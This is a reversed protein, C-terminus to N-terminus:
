IAVCRVIGKTPSALYLNDKSDVTMPIYSCGKVMEDIGAIVKAGEKSYVKVRTPDKEVTVVAGNSLYAVSVPNCCGHFEDLGTGRLGFALLQKGNLDYSQVRFAGLNAVLLENKDNIDFDLIGCCPRMNKIEAEEVGTSANFIGINRGGMDAIMLKGGAVRAGTAEKVGNMVFSNLEKGDKSYVKCNYGTIRKQKTTKGRFTREVEKETPVLVFINDKEDVAITSPISTTSVAFSKVIKGMPNIIAVTKDNNLAVVSGNSMVGLYKANKFLSGDFTSDVKYSVNSANVVESFNVDVSTEIKKRLAKVNSNNIDPSLIALITKLSDDSMGNSMTNLLFGSYFASPNKKMFNLNYEYLAKECRKIEAEYEKIFEKDDRKTMLESRMEFQKQVQEQRFKNAELAHENAINGEISINEITKIKRAPIGRYSPQEKEVVKGVFTSIENEVYICIERQSDKIGFYIGHPESFAVGKITFKGRKIEVERPNTGRFDDAVVIIGDSIGELTGNVVWGNHKEKGGCSIVTLLVTAVAILKQINKM